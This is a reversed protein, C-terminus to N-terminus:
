SIHDLYKSELPEMTEMSLVRQYTLYLEIGKLFSAQHKVVKM